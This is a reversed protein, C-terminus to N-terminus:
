ARSRLRALEQEFSEVDTFARYVSAFRVYAVEDIKSLQEMVIEGVAGVPVEVEGRARVATEIENTLQEITDVSIARKECARYLGDTIKQRNFPQRRGDKKIVVLPPREIREYTTYRFECQLCQRRRRISGGDELDRSEMVKSNCGGCQSCKM